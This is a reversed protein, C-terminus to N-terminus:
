RRSQRCLTQLEGNVIRHLWYPAKNPGAVAVFDDIIFLQKDGSIALGSPAILGTSSSSSQTWITTVAGRRTIKRVSGADPETVYVSGDPSVAVGSLESFSANTGVGDFDTGGYNLTGAITHVAGAASVERLLGLSISQGDMSGAYSDAVYVNGSSDVAIANASLFVARSDRGDKFYPPASDDPHPANGGPSGALMSVSGDLKIKRIAGTDAIYMVGRPDIAIANPAKLRAVSAPGDVFRRDGPKGAVVTFSGDSNLREVTGRYQVAVFVDGSPGVALSLGFYRGSKFPELQRNLLTRISGEPTVEQVANPGSANAIYIDDQADVAVAEPQDFRIPQCASKSPYLAPPAWGLTGAM